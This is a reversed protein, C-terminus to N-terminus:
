DDNNLMALSMFLNQLWKEIKAFQYTERSVFDFLIEVLWM